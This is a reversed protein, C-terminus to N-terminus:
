VFLEVGLDFVFWIVVEGDGSKVVCYDLYVKFEGDDKFVLLIKVNM